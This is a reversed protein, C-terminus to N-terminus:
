AWFATVAAPDGVYQEVSRIRGDEVTFLAVQPDHFSRGDPRAGSVQVLVCVRGANDAMFSRPVPRLTGATLQAAEALYAAIGDSGRHRGGLRDDNRHHWTADQHFLAALAALDRGAFADFVSRVTGIDEDAITSTSTSINV